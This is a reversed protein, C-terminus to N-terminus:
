SSRSSRTRSRATAGTSCGSASTSATFAGMHLDDHQVTPPLEGSALESCLQEFCSSFTRLRVIEDPRLPLGRDLLEHYRTPLTPLTLSPVGHDIHDNAYVAEGRQLEAYRPLVDVWVKPSHGLEGIPVGADALLLWRRHQDYAIVEAVRDPWRHSLEASLRPEFAQVPSCAKFWASGGALPVRLVTSWPRERSVEIAGTPHVFGCIWREAAERDRV